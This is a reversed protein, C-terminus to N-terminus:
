VALRRFHDSARHADLAAYREVLIIEGDLGDGDYAEYGPCGVETRSDASLHELAATVTSRNGPRIVLVQGTRAGALPWHPGDPAM